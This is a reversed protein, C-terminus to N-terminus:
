GGDAFVAFADLVRQLLGVVLQVVTDPEEGERKLQHGVRLNHVLGAAFGYSRDHISGDEGLQVYVAVGDGAMLQPLGEVNEGLRVAHPLAVRLCRYRGRCAGWGPWLAM